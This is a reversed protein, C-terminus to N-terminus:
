SLGAGAIVDNLSTNDYGQEVFMRFAADLVEVRRIEPRKIVRPM